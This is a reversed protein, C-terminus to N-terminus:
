QKLNKRVDEGWLLKQNLVKFYNSDLRKAIKISYNAKKIIVEAPSRVPFSDNGDSTVVIPARSNVSIRFVGKDPLIIPRATLTHPYMPALIIVDSGPNVIPGGASLSYGTSGTPTAIILGDALYSIVLQDNFYAQIELTRVNGTQHIVIENLGFINKSVNKQSWAQLVSREEVKFKKRLIDTIFKLLQEVSTESLFGLKGLNVGIIPIGSNSVLKATSLFTGDGGISIIFDSHKILKGNDVKYIAPIKYKFKQEILSSLKKDLLYKTKKQDLAKLLEHAIVPLETRQNNGRIGFTM